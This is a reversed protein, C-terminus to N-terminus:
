GTWWTVAVSPGPLPSQVVGTHWLFPEATHERVRTDASRSPLRAFSFLFSTLVSLMVTLLMVSVSTNPTRFTSSGSGKRTRTFSLILWYHKPFCVGRLFSVSLHVAQSFNKRSPPVHTHPARGQTQIYQTHPACVHPLRFKVPHSQNRRIKNIFAPDRVSGPAWGTWSTLKGSPGLSVGQRQRGVAPIVPLAVACAWWWVQGAEIHAHPDWIWGEHKHSLCM